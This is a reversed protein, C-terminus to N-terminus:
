RGDVFDAVCTPATVRVVKGKQAGSARDAIRWLYLVGPELGSVHLVSARLDREYTARIRELQLAGIANSSAVEAPEEAVLREGNPSLAVYLGQEFGRKHVTVELREGARAEPTTAWAVRVAGTRLATVSCYPEVTIGDRELAAEDIPPLYDHTPPGSPPDIPPDDPPNTTAPCGALAILCAAWIVRRASSQIHTMPTVLPPCYGYPTLSSSGM